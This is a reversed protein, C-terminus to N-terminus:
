SPEDPRAAPGNRGPERRGPGCRGAGGLEDPPRRLRSMEGAAQVRAWSSRGATVVAVASAAWSAVYEAGVSPDLAVLTLLVDADAVAEQVLAAFESRQADASVQGVPGAPALDDGEPVALTLQTGDVTVSRVGSGRAQLLAAVPAGEVLDAVM